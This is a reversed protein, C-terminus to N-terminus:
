TFIAFETPFDDNETAYTAILQEMWGNRQGGMQGDIPGDIPGDM